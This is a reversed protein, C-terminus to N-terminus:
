GNPPVIEVADAFPLRHVIDGCDNEVDIHKDLMIRGDRAEDAIIARAELLAAKAAADVSDFERGDGDLLVDVGDRLHFFYLPM